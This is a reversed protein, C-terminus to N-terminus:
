SQGPWTQADLRKGTRAPMRGPSKLRVAIGMLMVAVTGGGVLIFPAAPSITDFL